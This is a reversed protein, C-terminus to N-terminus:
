SPSLLHSPSLCVGILSHIKTDVRWVRNTRNTIRKMNKTTRKNHYIVDKRRQHEECPQRPPPYTAHRGVTEFTDDGIPWKCTPQRSAKHCADKPEYGDGIQWKKEGQDTGQECSQEEGSRQMLITQGVENVAKTAAARAGLCQGNHLVGM